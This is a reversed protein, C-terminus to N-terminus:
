VCRRWAERKQPPYDEVIRDMSQVEATLMNLNQALNSRAETEDAGLASGEELLQLQYELTSVLKRARAYAASPDAGAM